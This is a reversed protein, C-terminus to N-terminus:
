TLNMMTKWELVEKLHINAGCVIIVIKKGKLYDRNELAAAISCSAAPEILSKEEDLFQFLASVAQEDSLVTCRDVLSSVTGFIFPTTKKAGLSRAISTITPLEVIKKARVSQAICDAGSTEASVVEVYEKMGLAKLALTIGSVLGGGGASAIVVDFSPLEEVLELAITGQGIIVARDAFPHIYLGNRENSLGTGFSHADDWDIGHVIVEAGLERLVSIKHQSTSEPLIICCPVGIGNCAVTVAIGHNGGSSAIVCSPKESHSLLTNMAGRIKFSRGPQLFEFKLYVEALLEKSLWESYRLLTPKIQSQLIAQAKQFEELSPSLM